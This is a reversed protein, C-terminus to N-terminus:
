LKCARLEFKAHTNKVHVAVTICVDLIYVLAKFLLNSMMLSAHVRMSAHTYFSFHTTNLMHTRDVTYYNINWGDEAM